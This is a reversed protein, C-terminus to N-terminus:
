KQEEQEQIYGEVVQRAMQWCDPCYLRVIEEEERVVVNWTQVMERNKNDFEKECALCASPLRDFMMLKNQLKKEIKKDTVKKKRKLKRAVTM